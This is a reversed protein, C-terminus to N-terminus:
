NLNSTSFTLPSMMLCTSDCAQLESSLDLHPSVVNCTMLIFIQFGHLYEHISGAPSLFSGPNIGSSLWLLLLWSFLSLLLVQHPLLFTQLSYLPFFASILSYIHTKPTNSFPRSLHGNPKIVHLDSAVKVLVTETPIPNPPCTTHQSDKRPSPRPVAGTSLEQSSKSPLTTSPSPLCM